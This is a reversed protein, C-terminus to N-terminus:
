CSKLYGSSARDKGKGTRKGGLTLAISSKLSTAASNSTNPKTTASPSTPPDAFPLSHALLVVSPPTSSSTSFSTPPKCSPTLSSVSNCCRITSKTKQTPMEYRPLNRSSARPVTLKSLFLFFSFEFASELEDDEDAQEGANGHQPVM